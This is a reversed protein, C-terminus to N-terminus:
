IEAVAIQVEGGAHKAAFALLREGEDALARATAKTPKAFLDVHLI